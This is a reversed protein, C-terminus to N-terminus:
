RLFGRNVFTREVRNDPTGTARCQEVEQIRTLCLIESALGSRAGSLDVSLEEEDNLGTTQGALAYMEQQVAVKMSPIPEDAMVHFLRCDRPWRKDRPRTNGAARGRMFRRDLNPSLAPRIENRLGAMLEVGVAPRVTETPEVHFDLAGATALM